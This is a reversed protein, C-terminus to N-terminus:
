CRVARTVRDVLGALMGETMAEYRKAAAVAEAPDLKAMFLCHALIERRLTASDTM